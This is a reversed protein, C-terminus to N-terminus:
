EGDTDTEESGTHSAGLARETISVVGALALFIPISRLRAGYMVLAVGASVWVGLCHFCTVLRGLHAHVAVARLHVFCDFPGAEYFLLVTLRWAALAAIVLWVLSTDPPLALM